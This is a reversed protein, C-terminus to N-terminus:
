PLEDVRLLAANFLQATSALLLVGGVLAISIAASGLGGLVGGIISGLPISCQAILRRSSFVRGQLSVPVQSQWIAQSHANMVPSSFGVLGAAVLIVLYNGTGYGVLAAGALMMPAIVGFMRRRRLGGWAVVLLGGATGGCAAVTGWLALAEQFSLGSAAWSQATDIRIVVIALVGAVGDAANAVFFLSLLWLLSRRARIYNWGFPLERLVSARTETVPTLKPMRFLALILGALLFSIGDLLFGLVAGDRLHEIGLASAHHETLWQPLGFLVAAISPALIGRLSFATQLMGNARPLDPRRVLGVYATDFALAHFAGAAAVLVTTGILEVAGAHGSWVLVAFALTVAGSLANAVLKIRQRDLRDVYVGAIPVMLLTAVFFAGNNLALTRSLAHPDTPYWVAALWINTTFLTM